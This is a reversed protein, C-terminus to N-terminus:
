HCKCMCEGRLCAVRARARKYKIACALWYLKYSVEASHDSMSVVVADRKIVIYSDFHKERKSGILKKSKGEEIACLIVRFHRLHEGVHRQKLAVRTSMERKNHREAAM